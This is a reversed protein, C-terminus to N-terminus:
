TRLRPDLEFPQPLGIEISQFDPHAPNLLYNSEANIVASPVELVASTRSRLWASGILQLESPAPLDRWNRPLHERDVVEVLAEQFSCGIVVYSPIHRESELHVLMELTALAISGATYVVSLGKTHWRGDYKRAGEGDFATEAFRAEVIRWAEIM